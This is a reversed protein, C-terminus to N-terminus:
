FGTGRQLDNKMLSVWPIAHDSKFSAEIGIGRVLLNLSESVLIYDLREM